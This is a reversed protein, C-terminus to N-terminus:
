PREPAPPLEEVDVPAELISPSGMPPMAELGADVAVQPCTDFDGALALYLQIRFLILDLRASLSDRQLQQQAQIASLVDLYDADGILYQQRLQESAQGALKVQANIREIRQKQFREQALADEVERFANLMTQGYENFRQCVLADTRAIESRREGGDFLPAILQSSISVIWDRFLTEPNEAANLVSGTLNLRPYRASIASALDRDAAVLTLYSSKVDPRRMLLESSLGTEPLPPLDPLTAGTVYNAMQPLHGLLVALQHELVAIRAKVIVEQELTQEVLQRQRLVDASRVFGRGFRLEQSKLGRRNSEIQGALLDLQAYSEILAFWVQSVEAALALAVAHYDALTAQARFREADVRSQIQGWLDVQYASALGLSYDTDRIGSGLTTDSGIVGNIDPLLDSAERRAFARAARLRQLAAALTFNGGLAQEVYQNLGADSFETWWRTSPVVTGTESFPVVPTTPVPTARHSVCGTFLLM